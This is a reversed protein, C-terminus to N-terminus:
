LDVLFLCNVLHPAACRYDWCSVSAPPDFLEFLEPGAQAIYHVRIESLFFLTCADKREVGPQWSTLQGAGCWEVM